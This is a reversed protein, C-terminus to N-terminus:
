YLSPKAAALTQCEPDDGRSMLHAVVHYERTAGGGLTGSSCTVDRNRLWEWLTDLAEQTTSEAALSRGYPQRASSARPGVPM